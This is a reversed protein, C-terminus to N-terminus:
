HVFNSLLDINSNEFVAPSIWVHTKTFHDLNGQFADYM